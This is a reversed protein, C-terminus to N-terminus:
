IAINVGGTVKHFTYDNRPAGPSPESSFRRGFAYLVDFTIFRNFRYSYKAGIEMAKEDNSNAHVIRDGSESTLFQFDGFAGISNQENLHYTASTGIRHSKIVRFDRDLNDLATAEPTDKFVFGTDFTDQLTKAYAFNWILKRGLKHSASLGYVLESEEDNGVEFKRFAWGFNAGLTTKPGLRYSAAIGPTIQWYDKADGAIEPFHRVNWAFTPGVSLDKTADYSLGASVGNDIFDHQRSTAKEDFWQVTDGLSATLKPGLRHKVQGTLTNLLFTDDGGTGPVESLQLNNGVGIATDSSLDYRALATVNHTNINAHTKRGQTTSFGYTYDVESYLKGSPISVTIGPAVRAQWAADGQRAGLRANSNFGQNFAFHPRIRPKHGVDAPSLESFLDRVGFLRGLGSGIKNVSSTLFNSTDAASTNEFGGGAPGEGALIAPSGMLLITSLVILCVAFQRRERRFELKIM